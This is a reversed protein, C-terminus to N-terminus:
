ALEAWIFKDPLSIALDYAVFDLRGACHDRQIACSFWFELKEAKMSSRSPNPKEFRWMNRKVEREPTVSEFATVPDLDSDPEINAEDDDEDSTTMAVPTVQPM